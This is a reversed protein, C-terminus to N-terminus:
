ILLFYVELDVKERDFKRTMSIKENELRCLNTNLTQIKRRMDNSDEIPRNADRATSSVDHGSIRRLEKNEKSLEEVKALAEILQKNEKPSNLTLKISGVSEFKSSESAIRSHKQALLEKERILNYRDQTM